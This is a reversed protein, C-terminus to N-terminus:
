VVPAGRRKPASAEAAKLGDHAEGSQNPPRPREQVLLAGVAKPGCRGEGGGGVEPCHDGVGESWWPGCQKRAPAEAVKEVVM